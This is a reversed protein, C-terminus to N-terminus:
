SPLTSAACRFFTALTGVAGLGAVPLVRIRAGRGLQDVLDYVALTAPGSPEIISDTLITVAGLKPPQPRDQAAGGGSVMVLGVAVTAIPMLLRRM